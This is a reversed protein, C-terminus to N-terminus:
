GRVAVTGTGAPARPARRMRVALLAAALLLANAGWMGVVPSVVLEDALSEGALLLMYYAGLVALSAGIVLWAGGRPARLAIAMGVLALVVCAAPLALKKQVEVEYAAARAVADAGRAPRADRAAARLEGITMTRDSPPVTEGALVAALRANAHPVVQATVVLALAAVGAAAALVPVMLRRVGGRERRAAALTGDAGLRTFERLVAVLVAMPITMAATFPVALLLVEAIAGAPEGRAALAPLQRTAFLALLTATLATFAIAFSVAHRRLLRGTTPQPMPPGGPTAGAPLPGHAHVNWVDNWAERPRHDGRESAVAGGPRVREYAGRRVVDWVGAAGALTGHLRGRERARGLERAFLTEMAPGHKRRLVAPLLLLALRYGRAWSM